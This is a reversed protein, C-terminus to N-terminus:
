DKCLTNGLLVYDNPFLYKFLCYKKEIFCFSILIFLSEVEQPMIDEMDMQFLKGCPNCDKM